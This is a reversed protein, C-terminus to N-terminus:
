PTQLICSQALYARQAYAQRGPRVYLTEGQSPRYVWAAYSIDNQDGYPGRVEIVAVYNGLHIAVLWGYGLQSGILMNDSTKYLTSGSADVITAEAGESVAVTMAKWPTLPLSDSPGEAYQTCFSISRVLRYGPPLLPKYYWYGVLSSYEANGWPKSVIINAPQDGALVIGLLLEHGLQVNVVAIRRPVSRVRCYVNCGRFRWTREAVLTGNQVSWRDFLGTALGYSIGSPVMNNAFPYGTPIAAPDTIEYEHAAGLLGNWTKMTATYPPTPLPEIGPHEVDCWPWPKVKPDIRITFGSPVYDPAEVTEVPFTWRGLQSGSEDLLEVEIRANLKSLAPARWLRVTCPEDCEVTVREGPRALYVVEIIGDGDRDRDECVNAVCVRPLGSAAYVATYFPGSDVTYRTVNEQATETVPVKVRQPWEVSAYDKSVSVIYGNDGLQPTATGEDVVSGEVVLRWRASAPTGSVLHAPITATFRLHWPAVLRGNSYVPPQLWAM